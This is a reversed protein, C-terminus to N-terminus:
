QVTFASDFTYAHGDPNTVTIRLPGGSLAPVTATITNQDVFTASVQSVGFAVTAGNQFGSGRLTIHTGVTGTAPHVTALSLPAEFLQAITIGSNSILFMKTGTEDLVMSGFDQPIVEPLAVHRVLRGTHVDFINVGTDQPSFLLSGSPNLKEGFVNHLSQAGSDAYKEFAMINMRSLQANSIGFGTAFINGDANAAVDQFTGTYGTTLTNGILDLLGIPMGEIGSADALLIKGGDPSSAMAALGSGFGISVGDSQCSAVGVCSLSGTDLNILHLNGGYAVSTCDIDVLMRHSEAVSMGLTRGGCAIDAANLVPYTALVKSITPDVVAITGDASNVIALRAGDPTLALVTPQNGVPVPALYSGTGLDLVEVRNHDQNSIYLRQRAQDYVLDDLAGAIPYLQTSALYHFSGAVTVSGKSTEVTVDADGSTGPPTTLTLKQLPSGGFPGHVQVNTAPSGGILVRGNAELGYGAITISDGGMPSGSDADVIVVSPGYSVADPLVQFFGDSRVFTVNAAGAETSQPGTVNVVNISQVSINTGKKTLLSAPPAGFYVSYTHATSFVGNLQMPTPATMSMLTPSMHDGASFPVDLFGPSSADLYGMGSFAGGFIMNTEDITVPIASVGSFPVATGFNFSPVVGLLSFTQTDLVPVVNGALFDNELVYARKGDLSYIAGAITITDLALSGRVNLQGDYFTTPQNQLGVGLIQTGHANIAMCEIGPLDKPGIFLNQAVDYIVATAGTTDTGYVLVKSHDASRTMGQSFTFTAKGFPTIADSTPNWLLYPLRTVDLGVPLVLVNGNSLTAVEFGAQQQPLSTQHIVELRDPDITTIFSSYPSVVYVATGDASEDIGAPYSVPISAVRHGDVSSLVAVENLVEVSVFLLKRAPDYVAGTPGQDTRAFTSRTLATNSSFPVSVTVPLTAVSSNDSNDTATIVIPFQMPQATVGALVTFSVPNTPTLLSQPSGINVGSNPPAFSVNTLLEPAGGSSTVSVVVKTSSAPKLV